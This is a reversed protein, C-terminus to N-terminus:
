ILHLGSRRVPLGANENAYGQLAGAPDFAALAITVIEGLDTELRITLV